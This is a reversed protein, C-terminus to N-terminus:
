NENRVTWRRAADENELRTKELSPHKMLDYPCISGPVSGGKSPDYSPSSPNGRCSNCIRSSPNLYFICQGM